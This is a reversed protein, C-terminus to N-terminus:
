NTCDREERISEWDARTAYASMIRHESKLMGEEVDSQNSWGIRIAGERRESDLMAACATGIPMSRRILSLLRATTEAQDVQAMDEVLQELSLWVLRARQRCWNGGYVRDLVFRRMRAVDLEGVDPLSREGVVAILAKLDPV